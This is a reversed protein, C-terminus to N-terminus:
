DNSRNFCTGSARWIACFDMRFTRRRAASSRPRVFIPWYTGGLMTNFARVFSRRVDADASRGPVGVFWAWGEEDSVPM